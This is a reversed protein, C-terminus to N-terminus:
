LLAAALQQHTTGHGILEELSDLEAPDASRGLLDVYLQNIFRENANLALDGVNGKLVALEGEQISPTITVGSLVVTTNTGALTALSISAATCAALFFGFSHNM